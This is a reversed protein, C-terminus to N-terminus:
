KQQKPTLMASMADAAKAASAKVQHSYINLTTSPTSHGMCGAVTRIDTGYFIQLTAYTHRLKHPTVPRLGYKGAFRKLWLGVADPHIPSGDKRIFLRGSDTWRSGTKKRLQGCLGQLAKLARFVVPDAKLIRISSENKPLKTVIGVGSIYISARRIFIERKVFDIDQWQLGCLEERRIGTYLLLLVACRIRLDPEQLACVVYRKAEEPELFVPDKKKMRPPEYHAHDAANVPLIGERVAMGLVMRVLTHVHRITAPSYPKEGCTLARIMGNLVDTDIKELPVRGILRCATKLTLQYSHFTYESCTLAKQRLFHDSYTQFTQLAAAQKQRLAIDHSSKRTRIHSM